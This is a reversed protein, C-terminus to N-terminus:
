DFYASLGYGLGVGLVKVDGQAGQTVDFAMTIPVFFSFGWWRTVMAEFGLALEPIIFTANSSSGLFRGSSSTYNIGAGFLVFPNIRSDLALGGGINLKLFPQANFATASGQNNPESVTNFGLGLGVEVLDTACYGISGTLGFSTTTGSTGGSGASSSTSVINVGRQPQTVLGTSGIPASTPAFFNIQGIPFAPGDLEFEWLGARPTYPKVTEKVTEKVPEKTTEEARARVAVMLTLGVLALLIRKM